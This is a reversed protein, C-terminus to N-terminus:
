NLVTRSVREGILQVDAVTAVGYVRVNAMHIDDLRFM